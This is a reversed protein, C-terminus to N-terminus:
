NRERASDHWNRIARNTVYGIVLFMIVGFMSALITGMFMEPRESARQQKVRIFFGIGKQGRTFFFDAVVAGIVAGGSAIRVGTMLAPIAGPLELKWLRTWRSAKNLTFLDHHLQDASQLGFLTNTIVPFIAILVIVVLRVMFKEGFVQTLLPLIALIPVTQAVVAYPFIAREASKALNMVVAILVGLVISVVLGALTGVLTVWLYGLAPRLGNKDDWLPLFGDRIVEHPFPLANIRQAAIDYKLASYAYWIGLFVLFMLFPPLFNRLPNRSKGTREITRVPDEGDANLSAEATSTSMGTAMSMAM